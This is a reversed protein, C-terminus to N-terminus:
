GCDAAAASARPTRSVSYGARARDPPSHQAVLDIFERVYAFEAMERLVAASWHRREGRRALPLACLAGSSVLKDVAWAALVGVGLGAKVMEIIAGTQPVVQVRITRIAAPVFLRRYIASESVPADLLWTDGACDEPRLYRRSALRHGASVIAVMEDEFLPREVIRADRPSQSVIAVDLSGELLMAIPDAAIAAAMQVDVSPCAVRYANLVPPLWHFETYAGCSVRLAGRRGGALRHIAAETRELADLVEEASRLLRAGAATPVLRKGVRLFLPTALRSEIDRLQHSLASQSLHLARGAKTLSGSAVVARMLKLHRVEIEM